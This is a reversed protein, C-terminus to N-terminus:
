RCGVRAATRRRSCGASTAAYITAPAQPDVALASVSTNSLGFNVPNWSAGGDTSKLVGSGPGGAYLTSPTQPDIVLARPQPLNLGAVLTWSSGGNITKFVGGEGAAYLTAPTQPDIAIARVDLTGLGDSIRTWSAGDTTKYVGDLRTGAYVTVASTPDVVLTSFALPPVKTRISVRRASRSVPTSRRGIREPM